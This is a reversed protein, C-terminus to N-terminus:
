TASRPMPTPYHCILPNFHPRGKATFVAAVAANSTADAGLGYVTETPFAVLAGALLLRAAAPDGPQLGRRDRHAADRGRCIFHPNEWRPKGYRAAAGDLAAGHRGRSGAGGAARRHGVGHHPRLASVPRGGRRSAARDEAGLRLQDIEAVRADALFATLRADDAYHRSALM